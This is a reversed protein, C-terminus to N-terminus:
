KTFDAVLTEGPKGVVEKSVSEWNITAAITYRYEGAELKPSEYKRITGVGPMLQGQLTVPCDSTPVIVSLGITSLQRYSEQVPDAQQAAYRARVDKTAFRPSYGPPLPNPAFDRAAGYAVPRPTRYGFWGLGLTPPVNFLRGSDSGGFVGPTAGPQPVPMSYLSLGNSYFSGYVHGYYPGYGWVPGMFVGPSGQLGYYGNLGSPPDYQARSALPSIVAILFIVRFRM